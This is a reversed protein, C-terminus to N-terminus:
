KNKRSCPVGVETANTAVSGLWTTTDNSPPSVRRYSRLVSCLTVISSVCVLSPINQVCDGVYHAVSKKKQQQWLYYNPSFDNFEEILSFTIDEKAPLSSILRTTLWGDSGMEMVACSFRVMRKRSLLVPIHLLHVSSWQFINEWM